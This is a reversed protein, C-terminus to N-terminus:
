GSHGKLLASFPTVADADVRTGASRRPRASLDPAFGGVSYGDQTLVSTAFEAASRTIREALGTSGFDETAAFVATPSVVARLYAFLPRM